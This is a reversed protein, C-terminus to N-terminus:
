KQKKVDFNAEEGKKQMQKSKTQKKKRTRMKKNSMTYVKINSKICIPSIM